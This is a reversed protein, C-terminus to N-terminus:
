LYEQMFVELWEILTNNIMNFQRIIARGEVPIDKFAERNIEILKKRLHFEELLNQLYCQAKSKDVKDLSIIVANFDFHFKVQKRSYEELLQYFLEVGKGTISYITKEPMEGEKVKLTDLYGEQSLKVLNKYVAPASIKIMRPISHDEVFTALEYASRSKELVFGLLFLNITSM